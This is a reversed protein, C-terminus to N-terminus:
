LVYMSVVDTSCTGLCILPSSCSRFEKQYSYLVCFVSRSSMLDVFFIRYLFCVSDVRIVTAALDVAATIAM